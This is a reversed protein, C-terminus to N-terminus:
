WRWCGLVWCGHLEGGEEGKEVGEEGEGEGLVQLGAAFRTEVRGFVRTEPGQQAGLGDCAFRGDCATACAVVSPRVVAVRVRLQLEDRRVARHLVAPARRISRPLHTNGIREDTRNKDTLASARYLTSLTSLTPDLNFSVRIHLLIRAPVAVEEAGHEAAFCRERTTSRRAIIGALITARIPFQTLRSLHRRRSTPPKITRQGRLSVREIFDILAISPPKFFPSPEYPIHNSLSVHQDDLLLRHSCRCGVRSSPYTSRRRSCTGDM